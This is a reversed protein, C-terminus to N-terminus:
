QHDDRIIIIIIPLVVITEEEQNPHLLYLFGNIVDHVLM